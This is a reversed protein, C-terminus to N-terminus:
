VLPRARCMDEDALEQWYYSRQSSPPRVSLGAGAPVVGDVLLEMGKPGVDSEGKGDKYFRELCETMAVKVYNEWGGGKTPSIFDVHWEPNGNSPPTLDFTSSKFRSHINELKVTPNQTPLIAILIDQEIAAPLVPQSPDALPKKHACSCFSSVSLSPM